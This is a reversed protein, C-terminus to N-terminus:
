HILVPLSWDLFYFFFNFILYQFILKFFFKVKIFYIFFISFFNHHEKPHLHISNHINLHHLQHKHRYIPKLFPFFIYVITYSIFINYLSQYKYLKIFLMKIQSLNLRRGNIYKLINM